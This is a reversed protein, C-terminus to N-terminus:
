ASELVLKSANHVQIWHLIWFVLLPILVLVNLGPVLGCVGCIAFSLGFGYGVSTEKLLRGALWMKQYSQKLYVVLFFIWILNFVPILELWAMNPAIPRFEEDVAAFARRIALIYFVTPVYILPLLLFVVFWHWISFSGM